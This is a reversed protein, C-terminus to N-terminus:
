GTQPTEGDDRARSRPVLPDRRRHISLYRAGDPGAVLSRSSGRPLLLLVHGTLAHEVADLRVSASGELMVILVDREDNRHEAVGEGAPWALLTANLDVSEMGWQSGRAHPTRTLDVVVGLAPIRPQSVIASHVRM